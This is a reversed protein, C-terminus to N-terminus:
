HGGMPNRGAQVERLKGTWEGDGPDLQAAERYLQLAEQLRGLKCLEDAYDGLLEDDRARRAQDLIRASWRLPDTQVMAYAAGRPERRWAEELAVAADETRGLSRLIEVQRLVPAVAENKQALAVAARLAAEGDLQQLMQWAEDHGAERELLARLAAIAETRKGQNRLATARLVEIGADKGKALREDFLATALKPDFEALLGLLAPGGRGEGDEIGGGEALEDKVEAGRKSAILFLRRQWALAAAAGEDRQAARLEEILALGAAPDLRALEIAAQWNDGQLRLASLFAERAGQRDGAALLTIGIRAVTEPSVGHLEHRALLGILLAARETRGADLWAQLLLEALEELRSQYHAPLLGAVLLERLELLLQDLLDRQPQTLEPPRDTADAVPLEPAERREATADVPRGRLRTVEERLQALEQKAVDAPGTPDGPRVAVEPGFWAQVGLTALAGCLFAGCALWLKM